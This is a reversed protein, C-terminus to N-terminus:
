REPLPQDSSIDFSAEQSVSPPQCLAGDALTADHLMLQAEMVTSNMQQLCLDMTQMVEEPMTDSKTAAKRLHEIVKQNRMSSAELM